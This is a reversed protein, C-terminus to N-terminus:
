NLGEYNRNLLVLTLCTFTPFVLYGSILRRAQEAELSSYVFRRTQGAVTWNIGDGDKYSPNYMMEITPLPPIGIMEYRDMLVNDDFVLWKFGRQHAEKLRAAHSIHDDFFVLSKDPNRCSINFSMWDMEHYHINGDRYELNRLDIDFAHQEANANLQRLLWSSQGRFVGSEIILEPDLMRGIMYLWYNPVLEGGGPNKKIPKRAYVEAFDRSFEEAQSSTFVVGDLRHADFYDIFVKKLSEVESILTAQEM